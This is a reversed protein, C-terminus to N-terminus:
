GFSRFLEGILKYDQAIRSSLVMSNLSFHPYLTFRQLLLITLIYEAFCRPSAVDTAALDTRSPLCVMDEGVVAAPRM